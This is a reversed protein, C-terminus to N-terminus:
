ANVADSESVEVEDVQALGQLRGTGHGNGDLRQNEMQLPWSQGRKTRLQELAALLRVAAKKLLRYSESGNIISAM